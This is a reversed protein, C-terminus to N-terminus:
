FDVNIEKSANQFLKYKNGIELRIKSTGSIGSQAQLPIINKKIGEIKVPADNIFWSWVLSPIRLDKPSIFYPAAELIEAGEIRYGDNLAQEWITGLEADNKYFLIKPEWIPVTVSATSSYAQDATSATVSINNSDDLYDNVYAFSNKGYGSGDKINSYDKKWEYVLNKPNIQGANTKIEPMAVVKIESDATPLAKGRYFPPVYSDEAQWLLEMTAPRVVVKVEVTGDPLAVVATVNTESGTNPANLMFTKKGIGSLTNKGSVYWTILVTYLNNAYSNLSITVNEGPVPNEPVVDILISGTSAAEAGFPLVIGWILLVAILCTPWFGFKM